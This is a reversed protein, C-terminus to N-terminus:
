IQFNYEPPIQEEENTRSRKQLGRNRRMLEQINTGKTSDITKNVKCENWLTLIKIREIKIYERKLM